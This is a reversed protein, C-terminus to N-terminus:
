AGIKIPKNNGGGGGGGCGAIALAAVTPVSVVLWRLKRM